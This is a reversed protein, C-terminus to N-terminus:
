SAISGDGAVHASQRGRLSQCSANDGTAQCDFLTGFGDAQQYLAYSIRSGVTAFSFQLIERLRSSKLVFGPCWPKFWFIVVSQTVTPALAGAVLAWVGMGMMAMALVVPLTVFAAFMEAQSIRYLSVSKRLLSDPV